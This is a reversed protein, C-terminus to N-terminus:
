FINLLTPELNWKLYLPHGPQGSKNLKLYYPTPINKLVEQARNQFTGYEWWCCIIKEGKEFISKLYIDNEKWIPDFVKMMNKPETARYAFLNWMYFWGYWWNKAYNLCKKITPDDINADATSPNLGIFVIMPKTEDFVRSLEYRYNTDESIIAKRLM